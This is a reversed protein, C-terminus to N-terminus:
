ARPQRTCCRAPATTSCCSTRRARPSRNSARPPTPVTGISTSWSPRGGSEADLQDLHRRRHQGLRCQARRAGHRRHDRAQRAGRRHRSRQPAGDHRDRRHPHPQGPRDRPRRRGRIGEVNASIVNGVGPGDITVTATQTAGVRIGEGKGLAATGDAGILSSEIALPGADSFVAPAPWGTLVLNRPMTTATSAVNIELATGLNVGATGAIGVRGPGGDITV